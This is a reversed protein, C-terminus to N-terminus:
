RGFEKILEEEAVARRCEFYVQVAFCLNERNWAHAYEFPEAVVGDVPTATGTIPTSKAVETEEPVIPEPEEGVEAPQVTNVRQRDAMEKKMDELEQLQRAIEAQQEAMREREEKLKADAEAQQQQMVERDLKLKADEEARRKADAEAQEKAAREADIRQQEQIAALQEQAQKGEYMTALQDLTAKLAYEAEVVREGFLEKDLDYQEYSVIMNHVDASKKNIVELPAAKINDIATQVRAAAEAEAKIRAAKEDAIRQEEAKIPADFREEYPRVKEIVEKARSDLLRGIELIPAKCEARKKDINIRIERFAARHAKAAEMGEKTTVVVTDIGSVNKVAADFAKIFTNYSQTVYNEPDITVLATTAPAKAKRPKVPIEATTGNM